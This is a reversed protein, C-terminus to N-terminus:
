HAIPGPLRCCIWGAPQSYSSRMWKRGSHSTIGPKPQHTSISGIANLSEVCGAYAEYNSARTHEVAMFESTESANFACTDVVQSGRTNIIRVIKAKDLRVAIGRTARLM